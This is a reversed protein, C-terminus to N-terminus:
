RRVKKNTPAADPNNGHFLKVFHRLEVSKEHADQPPHNTTPHNIPQTTTQHTRWTM